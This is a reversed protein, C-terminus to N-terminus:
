KTARFSIILQYNKDCYDLENQNIEMTALGTIFAITSLVNGYTNVTINAQSFSEGLLKMISLDTFRWYDGWKEMDYRSIQSIGPVTGILIGGPKLAGYCTQIASRIDFIMQLTQTLIICDFHSIPIGEGTSLDAILTALPNGPVAHLVESKIVKDNGFKKTYFNDGIELVVGSIDNQYDVLFKEIYYRDIPQGRDFGFTYSIPKLSRFSGWILPRLLKRQVMTKLDRRM